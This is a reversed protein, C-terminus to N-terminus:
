WASVARELTKSQHLHQGIIKGIACKRRCGQILETKLEAKAEQRQRQKQMQQLPQQKIRSVSFIMPDSVQM